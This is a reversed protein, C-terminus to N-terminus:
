LTGSPSANKLRQLFSPSPSLPISSSGARARPEVHLSNKYATDDDIGKLQTVFKIMETNREIVDEDEEDSEDSNNPNTSFYTIQQYKQIESIVSAVQRHKDFNILPSPISSEVTDPNGEDIFVLDSLYVGIYPICPQSANHLRERYMKFSSQSSM